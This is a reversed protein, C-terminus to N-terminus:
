PVFNFNKSCHLKRSYHAYWEDRPWIVAVGKYVLRFDKLYMKEATLFWRILCAIWSATDSMNASSTGVSPVNTSTRDSAVFDSQEKLTKRRFTVHACSKPCLLVLVGIAIGAEINLYGSSFCASVFLAM